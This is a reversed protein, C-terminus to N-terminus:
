EHDSTRELGDAQRSRRMQHVGPEKRDRSSVRETDSALDGKTVLSRSICTADVNLKPTCEIDLCPVGSTIKTREDNGTTRANACQSHTTTAQKTLVDENVSTNEEDVVERCVQEEIEADLIESQHELYPRKTKATM